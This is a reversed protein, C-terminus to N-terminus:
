KKRKAVNRWDEFDCIDCIVYRKTVRGKVSKTKDTDRLKTKCPKHTRPFRGPCQIPIYGQENTEACVDITDPLLAIKQWEHWNHMKNGNM